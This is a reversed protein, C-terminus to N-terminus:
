LHEVLQIKKQIDIATNLQNVIAVTEDVVKQVFEINSSVVAGEDSTIESMWRRHLVKYIELMYPRRANASTATGVAAYLQVLKDFNETLVARMDVFKYVEQQPHKQIFLIAHKDIWLGYKGKRTCFIDDVSSLDVTNAM